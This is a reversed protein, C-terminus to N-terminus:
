AFNHVKIAKLSAKHKMIYLSIYAEYHNNVM